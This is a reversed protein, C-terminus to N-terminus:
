GNKIFEGEQLEKFALDLEEQTNMVIPGGWAIPERIPMGSVLLFRIGKEGAKIDVVDGKKFIVLHETKVPGANEPDFFGDGEFVYALASNDRKVQHSFVKHPQIAVDLYEVKVVLDRIPGEQGELRGAIVKVQVGDSPSISPIQHSKVERYRPKIMKMSAPLNVWLQFGQMMGDYRQPMEQHLIGSGATMWQVDGSNIVGKNGITDRHEIVGRIVYTVTEIGRHPHFPFGVLYDDPNASHFDDLLLFPDLLSAEAPGFARKLRVGAGETTPRSKLVKDVARTTKM